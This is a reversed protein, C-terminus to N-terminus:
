QKTQYDFRVAGSLKDGDIVRLRALYFLRSETGALGSLTRSDGGAARPSGVQRPRLALIKLFSAVQCALVAGGRM